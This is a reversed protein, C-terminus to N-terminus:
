SALVIAVQPRVNAQAATARGPEATISARVSAAAARAEALAFAVPEPGSQVSVEATDRGRSKSPAAPDRKSALSSAPALRNVAGVAGVVNLNVSM